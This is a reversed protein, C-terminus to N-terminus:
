RLASIVRSRLWRERWDATNRRDRYGRRNGARRDNDNSAYSHDRRETARRDKDSRDVRMM